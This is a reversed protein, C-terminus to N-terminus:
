QDSMIFNEMLEQIGCQEPGHHGNCFSCPMEVPVGRNSGVKMWKNLKELSPPLVKEHLNKKPQTTKKSSEFIIDVLLDDEVYVRTQELLESAKWRKESNSGTILKEIYSKPFKRILIDAMTCNDQDPELNILQQFIAQIEILFSQMEKATGNRMPALDQIQSSLTFIVRRPDGYVDKLLKRAVQYNESTIPLHQILLAAEGEVFMQLYMLKSTDTLTPQNNLIADFNDIFRHYKMFNGDFKPMLHPPRMVFQPYVQIRQHQPEHSSEITKKVGSLMRDFSHLRQLRAKEAYNKFPVDSSETAEPSKTQHDKIDENPKKFYKKTLSVRNAKKEKNRELDAAEKEEKFKKQAENVERILNDFSCHGIFNIREDDISVPDRSNSKEIPTM